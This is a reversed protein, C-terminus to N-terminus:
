VADRSIFVKEQVAISVIEHGNEMPHEEAGLDREERAEEEMREVMEKKMCEKIQESVKEQVEASINEKAMHKVILTKIKLVMMHAKMMDKVKKIAEVVNYTIKERIDDTVNEGICGEINPMAQIVVLIIVKVHIVIILDCFIFVNEQVVILSCGKIHVSEGACCDSQMGQYSCKRRCLLCVADRSIFVKDQVIISVTGEEEISRKEEGLEMIKEKMKEKLCEKMEDTMNAMAMKEGIMDKFKEMMEAKKDASEIHFAFAVSFLGLLIFWKM